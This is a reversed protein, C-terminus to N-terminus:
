LRILEASPYHTSLFGIATDEHSVEPGYELLEQLLMTPINDEIKYASVIINWTVFEGNQVEFESIYYIKEM